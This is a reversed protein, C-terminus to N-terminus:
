SEVGTVGLEDARRLFAAAPVGIGRALKVILLYDPELRGDELKGIRTDSVGAAGALEGVSLGHQERIERFAKGLALLDGEPLRVDDV